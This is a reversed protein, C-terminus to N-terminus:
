DILDGWDLDMSLFTLLTALAETNDAGGCHANYCATVDAPDVVNIAQLKPNDTLIETVNKSTRILEGIDFTWGAVNKDDPTELFERYAWSLLYSLFQTEWSASLGINTTPHPISALQEDLESVAGHVINNRLSISAPLQLHLDLLRYDLLPNIYPVRQVMSYYAFHDRQNTLPYYNIAKVMTSFDPYEIGHSYASEDSHSINAALVDRIDTKLYCEAGSSKNCLKTVLEDTTSLHRHFPLPINPFGPVPIEWRPYVYGKFFTDMFQASLMVDVSERFESDFMSAHGQSFLSIFDMLKPNEVLADEYYEKDTELLTLDQNLHDAIRTAIRTETSETWYTMHFLTTDGLLAALLRSDSGGSLLLGIDNYCYRITKLISELINLLETRFEPRSASRPDYRPQWYNSCDAAGGPSFSLVSGPPVKAIGDIPTKNGLTRWLTLYETLADDALSYEESLIKALPQISSSIYMTDGVTSYFLPRSALRNTFVKVEDKREDFILGCFDGNVASYWNTNHTKHALKFCRGVTPESLSERDVHETANYYGFATGWVWLLKSDSLRIPQEEAFVPHVARGVRCDNRKDVTSVETGTYCLAQSFAEINVLDDASGIAACIGAM